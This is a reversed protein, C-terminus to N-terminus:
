CDVSGPNTSRAAVPHRGRSPHVRTLRQDMWGIVLSAGILGFIAGACTDSFHHCHLVIRSWAVGVTWVVMLWGFRNGALLLAFAFGVDRCIERDIRDDSRIAGVLGLGALREPSLYSDDSAM